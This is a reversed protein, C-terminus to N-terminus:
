RPSTIGNYRIRNETDLPKRFIEKCFPLNPSFTLSVAIGRARKPHYTCCFFGKAAFVDAYRASVSLQRRALLPFGAGRVFNLHAMHLPSWRNGRRILLAHLVGGGPPSVGGTTQFKRKTGRLARPKGTGQPRCFAFDLCHLFVTRINCTEKCFDRGTCRTCPAPSKLRM